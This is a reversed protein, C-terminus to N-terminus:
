KNKNKKKHKILNGNEDYYKEEILNGQCNYTSEIQMKPNDRFTLIIIQGNRKYEKDYEIKKNKVKVDNYLFGDKEDWLKMTGFTTANISSDLRTMMGSTLDFMRHVCITDLNIYTYNYLDHLIEANNKIYNIRNENLRGNDYQEYSHFGISNSNSYKISEWLGHKKNKRYLGTNIIRGKRDWEKYTSDLLGDCFWSESKLISHTSDHWTYKRERICDDNGTSSFCFLM